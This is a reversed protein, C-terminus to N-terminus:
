CTPIMVIKADPFVEKKDYNAIKVFFTNIHTQRLKTLVYPKAGSSFSDPAAPAM